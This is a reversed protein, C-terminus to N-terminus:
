GDVLDPKWNLEGWYETVARMLDRLAASTPPKVLYSNVGRDYARNVDRPDDSSTLIVVPVRRLGPQERVWALVQHGSERPLWLDLLVVAPLPHRTRDAFPERGELYARAATGDGVVHLAHPIEGRQLARRILFVDNPDDEVLLITTAAGNM